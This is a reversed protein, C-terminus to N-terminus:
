GAEHGDPSASCRDGRCVEGGDVVAAYVGVHGGHHRVAARLIGPDKPLDSQPLTTMVCRPCPGTVELRVTGGLNLLRGIWGDEVFGAEGGPTAVVLNPRFRRVEFRGAPEVRRLADLTATTLLHITALDFFTGPPMAEDTFTDRHALGEIDPWYEELRPSEPASAILRVARGLLESLARDVDDRDSRLERGDPLTIRVPPPPSGPAPEDLLAARCDFLRRYKHPSKASAIRGEEVDIVAYARDGLLGRRLIEAANREEGMMSKVPYRWLAVLEGLLDQTAM